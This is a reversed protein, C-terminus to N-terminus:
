GMDVFDVTSHDIRDSQMSKGLVRGTCQPSLGSLARTSRPSPIIERPM